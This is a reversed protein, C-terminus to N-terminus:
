SEDKEALLSAYRFRAQRCERALSLKEGALNRRDRMLSSLTDARGGRGARFRLEEQSGQSLQRADRRTTM